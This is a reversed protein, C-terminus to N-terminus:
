RRGPPGCAKVESAAVLIGFRQKLGVVIWFPTIPLACYSATAADRYVLMMALKASPLHRGSKDIAMRSGRQAEASLWVSRRSKRPCLITSHDRVARTLLSIDEAQAVTGAM